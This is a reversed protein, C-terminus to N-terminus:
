NDHLSFVHIALVIFSIKEKKPLMITPM